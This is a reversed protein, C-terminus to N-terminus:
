SVLGIRGFQRPGVVKGYADTQRGPVILLLVRGLINECKVCGVAAVRSDSSNNRNDGMVFVCGEPVTLPYEQWGSGNHTLEYIYPEDLLVGDVYVEGSTFDINVEQGGTAIVRKVILRDEESFPPTDLVVIDGRSVSRYLFNSELVLYDRDVLTPFMSSGDVGVLRFFFVFIVTIVALMRVLDHLILYAEYGRPQQEKQEAASAGDHEQAQPTVGSEQQEM